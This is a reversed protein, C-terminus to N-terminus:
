LSRTCARNFDRRWVTGPDRWVAAEVVPLTEDRERSLTDLLACARAQLANVRAPDLKQSWRWWGGKTAYVEAAITGWETGLSALVDVMPRCEPIRQALDESICSLLELDRSLDITMYEVATRM